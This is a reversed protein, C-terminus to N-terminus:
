RWRYTTDLQWCQKHKVIIKLENSVFSFYIAVTIIEQALGTETLSKMLTNPHQNSSRHLSFPINQAKAVFVNQLTLLSFSPLSRWWRDAHTLLQVQLLFLALVSCFSWTTLSLSNHPYPCCLERLDGATTFPVQAKGMATVLHTM